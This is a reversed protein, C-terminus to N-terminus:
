DCNLKEALREVDLFTLKNKSNYYLKSSDFGDYGYVFQVISKNASRVSGDSHVKLDEMKKVIRRQAYGSSSTSVSTNIIGERGAMAHFYQHQPNLGNLYCTDVFGRAEPSNDNTEFHPLCRKGHSLMKPARTGNIIQQGLLATIQSLNVHSGKAGSKHMVLISNQDGKAVGGQTLRQGVNLTSNLIATIEQELFEGGIDIKEQCEVQAKELTNIIENANEILCDSIGVSFGRIPLWRHIIFQTNSLFNACLENSYEKALLHVISNAKSSGLVKKCMPGSEPTIIGNKIIVTPNSPMTDTKKNYNFNRPLLISFLIKGCVSSSIEYNGDAMMKVIKPYFKSARKLFEQYTSFSYNHITMMCDYFVHKSLTADNRTMLYSGILTDQVLAIIPANHQPSVIRNGVSMFTSLEATAGISQPVHVNIEREVWVKAHSHIM